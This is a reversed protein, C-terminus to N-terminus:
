IIETIILTVNDFGGQNKAAQVLHDSLENWSKRALLERIEEDSILDTLGDSCLLFRDGMKVTISFIDKQLEPSQGLSREILNKQPHRRLDEKSLKGEKFMRFIPSHDETLQELESNRLRYIRSDGVHGIWAEDQSALAFWLASVTTGMGAFRSDEQQRVLIAQNALDLASKLRERPIGNPRHLEKRLIDAAMSSAVEGAAHGGLGDCVIFLSSEEDAVYADENKPRVLGRDTRAQYRVKLSM